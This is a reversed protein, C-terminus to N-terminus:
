TAPFNRWWRAPWTRTDRIEEAQEVNRGTTFFSMYIVTVIVSMIATAILVELLTFGNSRFAFYPASLINQDSDNM